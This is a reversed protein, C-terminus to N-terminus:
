GASRIRRRRGPPSGPSPSSSRPRLRGPPSEEKLRERPKEEPKAAPKDGHLITEKRQTIVQNDKDKAVIELTYVGHPLDNIEWQGSWLMVSSSSQTKPAGTSTAKAAGNADFLKGAITKVQEGITPSVGVTGYLYGYNATKTVSLPLLARGCTKLDKADLRDVLKVRGFASPSGVSAPSSYVFTRDVRPGGDSSCLECDLGIVEGAKAKFDPFLAWPLKFTASWGLRFQEGRVEAGELKFDKFAPLERVGMRPKVKTGTFPTWFMHLTGPGFEKAGLQEGRRTDLYFEAADGNWIQKDNGSHNPKQDFCHLGIYLYKEDWLYSFTAARNDQDPHGVHVPTVFAGDFDTLTGDMKPPKQAKPILGVVPKEQAAAVAPLLAVLVAGLVRSMALEGWSGAGRLRNRCRTASNQRIRGSAAASNQRIRSRSEERRGSRKM